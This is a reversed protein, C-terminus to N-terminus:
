DILQLIHLNIALGEIIKARAFPLSILTAAISLSGGLVLGREHDWIGHNIFGASIAVTWIAEIQNWTMGEPALITVLFAVFFSAAFGISVRM